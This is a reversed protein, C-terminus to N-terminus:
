ASGVPAHQREFLRRVREAVRRPELPKFLTEDIGSLEREGEDVIPDAGGTCLVIPCDPRVAKIRKALETGLMGPMTQDIVVADWAGPDQEFAHVAEIPDNSSTVDYGLRELGIAMMETIGVDDDIVMISESGRVADRSVASPAVLQAMDSLPLYITFESGRGLRSTVRYAGAYAAVIGHIVALGLGSGRGTEKTTYFPEFIRDLTTQDMGVGTDAVSIAAYNRQPDLRGGTALATGPEPCATAFRRRDPHDEDIRALRVSVEGPRGHLADNANLCLNLVVQHVQGENILAALPDAGPVITLRTSSALAARVLPEDNAVLRRLDVCQRDVDGARSFALIQRVIDRAHECVQTIRVAFRHQSTDPPLDDRLFSSFGAIAGIMNNFDHAIGSALRGIAEMKAAQSLQNEVRRRDTINVTFASMGVIEGNAGFIPFKLVEIHELGPYPMLPRRELRATKGKTLAEEDTARSLKFMDPQLDADTRGRMQDVSLGRWAAYQRNVVVYRRDKDKVYIGVPANDLIAQLQQERLRLAEEAKKQETIDGFSGVVRVPTGDNAYVIRGRTAIWRWSGDAHQVRLEGASYPERRAFLEALRREKVVLDEPHIRSLFATRDGNLAGDPLGFLQHIRASFWVAGSRVDRDFLGERMGEVALAYREESARLALEVERIDTLDRLVIHVRALAGVSDVQPRGLIHMWRVGGDPRVVRCDCSFDRRTAVGEDLAKTYTHRDDPHIFSLSEGRTLSDRKPMGLLDFLAASWYVRDTELDWVASGVRGLRETELLQQNAELLAAEATKRATIDGFSGVVRLASGDAAYLIRGRTEMWHWSGDAHRMRFVGADYPARRAIAQGLERQRVAFDDPQIRSVYSARDGNLTGNPLGLLQHARESFWITNNSLDRDYLGERM